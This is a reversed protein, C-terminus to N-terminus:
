LARLMKMFFDAQEKTKIMKALSSTEGGKVTLEFKNNNKKAEEIHKKVEKLVKEKM